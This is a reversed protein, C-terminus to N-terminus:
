YNYVLRVGIVYIDDTGDNNTITLGCYDGAALNTYIGSLDLEYLQNLTLNYTTAADAQSHTNYAQGVAGYDSAIDIDWAADNGGPILIAGLSVLSSFDAPASFTINDSNGGSAIQMTIFDGLATFGNAAPFFM